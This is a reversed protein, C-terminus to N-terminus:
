YVQQKWSRLGSQETLDVASSWYGQLASSGSLASEGVSLPAHTDLHYLVRQEEYPMIISQRREDTGHLRLM